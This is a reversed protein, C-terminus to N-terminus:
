VVYSEADPELFRLLADGEQELAHRSRRDIAGFADLVLKAKKKEREVRWLGAVRGDILFTAPVMLNKTILRPRFCDAVMRRRDDHALLLNDFEPLFRVPVEEDESPRPAGPLDLLERGEDDRFARLRPRLENVVARVNRLGSWTQADKASAPGFAAFYRLVLARPGADHSLSEGLWTEALTFDASARYAWPADSAPVQVLPLQMKIFYGIAREDVKPFTGSLYERLDAFTSPRQSFYARATRHVAEIDVKRAVDGLASEMARTLVPQVVPRWAIFDKRSVLHITGRMMTGRVAERRDIARILDERRFGEIRSWLGIFPPKPVQAQMGALREIVAVPKAKERRLLM